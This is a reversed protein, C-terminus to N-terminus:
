KFDAHVEAIAVAIPASIAIDHANAKRHFSCADKYGLDSVEAAWSIAACL